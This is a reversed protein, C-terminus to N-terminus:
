AAPWTPLSVHEYAVFVPIPALAFVSYHQPSSRRSQRDRCVQPQRYRILISSNTVALTNAHRLHGIDIGHHSGEGIGSPSGYELPDDPGVLNGHDLQRPPAAHRLAGDGLM